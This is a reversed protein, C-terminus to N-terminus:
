FREEYAVERKANLLRVDDIAGPSNFSFVLGVVKGFNRAYALQHVRQGDLFVQVHRNTNEIRVTQWRYLDRGFASLDNDAARQVTEGMKLSLEGV